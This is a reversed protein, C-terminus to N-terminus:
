ETAVSNGPQTLQFANNLERLKELDKAAPDGLSSWREEFLKEAYQMLELDLENMEEISRIVTLPLVKVDPRHPSVNESTYTMWSLPANVLYRFIILSEDFRNVLGCFATKDRLFSKAAELDEHTVPWDDASTSEFAGPNLTERGSLLRVQYNSALVPKREIFQELTLAASGPMTKTEIRTNYSHVSVARDVPDRLFYYYRVPRQIIEELQLGPGFHGRTSQYLSLDKKTKGQYYNRIEQHNWLNLLSINEIPLQISLRSAEPFCRYWINGFTTGATKFIHMFASFADAQETKWIRQAGYLEDILKANAERIHISEELQAMASQSLQTHMPELASMRKALNRLWRIPSIPM